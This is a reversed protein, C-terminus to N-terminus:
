ATLQKNEFDIRRQKMEANLKRTVANAIITKGYVESVFIVNCQNRWFEQRNNRMRQSVAGSTTSCGCTRLLQLYDYGTRKGFLDFDCELKPLIFGIWDRYRKEIEIFYKRIARGIENEEVMALEKAVDLSVVYDVSPRGGKYKSSQTKRLNIFFENGEEYGYKKIRESIWDAYQQKSELKMHLLRSNVQLGLQGQEVPIPEDSGYVQLNSEQKENLHLM